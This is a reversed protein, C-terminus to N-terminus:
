LQAPPVPFKIDEVKVVRKAPKVIETKVGIEALETQLTILDHIDSFLERSLISGSETFLTSVTKYDLNYQARMLAMAKVKTDSKAVEQLVLQYGAAKESKMENSLSYFWVAWHYYTFGARYVKDNSYSSLGAFAGGVFPEETLDHMNAGRWHIQDSAAIEDMVVNFKDLIDPFRIFEHAVCEFPSDFLFHDGSQYKIQM